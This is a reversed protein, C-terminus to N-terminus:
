GGPLLRLRPHLHGGMWCFPPPATPRLMRGPQPCRGEECITHIQRDKIIRQVESIESANGISYRRLWPPMRPSSRARLRQRKTPKQNSPFHDNRSHSLVPSLVYRVERTYRPNAPLGLCSRSRLTIWSFFIGQARMRFGEGLAPHPSQIQDGKQRSKFQRASLSHWAPLRLRFKGM